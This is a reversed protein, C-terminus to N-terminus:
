GEKLPDHGLDMLRHRWEMDGATAEPEEGRQQHVRDVVAAMVEADEATLDTRRKRLVALVHRGTAPGAQDPLPETEDPREGAESERLWGELEASTMNVATHFEDWLEDSVEVHAM